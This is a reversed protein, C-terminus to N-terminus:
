RDLVDDRTAAIIMMAEDITAEDIDSERLAQALHNAVADFHVDSLGHHRVLEAHAERLDRGRYPEPEGFACAMFATQKKVLADLDLHEFFRATLPDEAVREHFREIVSAIASAGGIRDFLSPERDM